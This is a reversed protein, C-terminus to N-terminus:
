RILPFILFGIGRLRKKYASLKKEQDSFALLLDTNERKLEALESREIGGL